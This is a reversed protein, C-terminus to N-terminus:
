KILSLIPGKKTSQCLISPHTFYNYSIKFIGREVFANLAKSEIFDNQFHTSTIFAYVSPDDTLPLMEYMVFLADLLIPIYLHENGLKM